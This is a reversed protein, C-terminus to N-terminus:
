SNTVTPQLSIPSRVQQHQNFPQKNIRQIQYNNNPFSPFHAQATIIAANAQTVVTRTQQVQQVANIITPSQTAQQVQQVQVQNPTTARRLQTPHVQQIQQVQRLQPPPTPHHQQLQQHQEWKSRNPTTTQFTEAMQFESFATIEHEAAAQELAAQQQQQQKDMTTFANLRVPAGPAKDFKHREVPRNNNGGGGAGGSAGDGDHAWIRSMDSDYNNNYGISSNINNSNNRGLGYNGGTNNNQTDFLGSSTM